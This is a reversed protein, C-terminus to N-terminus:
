RAEHSDGHSHIEHTGPQWAKLAQRLRERARSVRSKVTGLEIGEIEAIEAHPLNQIEALVFASRQEIPLEDLAESLHQWIERGTAAVDPAPGRDATDVDGPLDFCRRKLQNCCRNRAMTLLWTSFRARKADFTSLNQFASVFVEQVVDESDEISHLMNRVFQFVLREHSEILLRFAGTQGSLV